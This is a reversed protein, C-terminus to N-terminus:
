NMRLKRILCTQSRYSLRATLNLELTMSFSVIIFSRPSVPVPEILWDWHELERLLTKRTACRGCALLSWSINNALETRQKPM